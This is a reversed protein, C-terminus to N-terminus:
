ILLDIGETDTGLAQPPQGRDQIDLDLVERGVGGGQRHGHDGIAGGGAMHLEGEIAAAGGLQGRRAQLVPRIDDPPRIVLGDADIQLLHGLVADGLPPGTVAQQEGTLQEGAAVGSM